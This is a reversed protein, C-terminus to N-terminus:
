IGKGTPGRAQRLFGAVMERGRELAEQYIAQREERTFGKGHRYLRELSMGIVYTAAFSIAAKPVLGAGMPMKGALERALARWGFAGAFVSAIEAKQEAYGVTRDHAAALMFAMRIQNATLFATDSAFEGLAWPLSILPMMSPVATAVSFLANEKAVNWTINQAVPKRFVEIQRALSLHLDPYRDLIELLVREPENRRFVFADAEYPLNEDRVRIANGSVFDHGRQIAFTVDAPAASAMRPSPAFYTELDRYAEPSPAFLQITFPLRAQDRVERPRLHSLATRIGLLVRAGKMM